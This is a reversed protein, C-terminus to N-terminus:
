WGRRPRRGGRGYRLSGHADAQKLEIWHHAIQGAVGRADLGCVGAGHLAPGLEADGRLQGQGAVGRAVHQQVLAKGGGGLALGFAQGRAQEGFV